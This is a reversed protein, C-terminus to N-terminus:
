KRINRSDMEITNIEISEIKVKLIDEMYWKLLDENNQNLMVEKFPRDYKCTYFKNNM